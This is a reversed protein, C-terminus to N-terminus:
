ADLRNEGSGPGCPQCSARHPPLLHDTMRTLHYRGCRNWRGRDVRRFRSLTIWAPAWAWPNPNGFTRAEFWYKRSLTCSHPTLQASKGLARLLWANLWAEEITDYGFKRRPMRRCFLPDPYPGPGLFIFRSERAVM